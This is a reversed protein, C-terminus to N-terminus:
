KKNKAELEQKQKNASELAHVCLDEFSVNHKNALDLLKGFSEMVDPPINGGREKSLWSAQHQLPHHGPKPNGIYVDFPATKDGFTCPITFKKM